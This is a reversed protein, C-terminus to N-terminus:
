NKRGTFLSLYALFVLLVSTITTFPFQHLMANTTTGKSETQTYHFHTLIWAGLKM